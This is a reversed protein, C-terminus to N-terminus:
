PKIKVIRKQNITKKKLEKGFTIQRQNYQRVEKALEDLKFATELEHDEHSIEMDKTIEMLPDILEELEPNVNFKLTLVRVPFKKNLVIKPKNNKLLSM